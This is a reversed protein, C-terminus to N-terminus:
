LRRRRASSCVCVCMAVVCVRSASARGFRLPADASSPLAAAVRPPRPHVRPACNSRACASVVGQMTIDRHPLESICYPRPFVDWTLPLAEGFARVADSDTSQAGRQQQEGDQAEDSAAGQSQSQSQQSQLSQAAISGPAAAADEEILHDAEMTDPLGEVYEM